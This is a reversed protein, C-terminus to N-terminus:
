RQGRDNLTFNIHKNSLDRPAMANGPGFTKPETESIAGSEVLRNYRKQIELLRDIRSESAVRLIETVDAAMSM